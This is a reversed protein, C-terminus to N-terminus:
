KTHRRANRSKLTRKLWREYTGLIEGYSKKGIMDLHRNLDAAGLFPFAKSTPRAVYTQNAALHLLLVQEAEFRWLEPIGIAAYLSQRDLSSSSIDVEIALDPPPDTTFDPERRALMRVAHALYFCADPEFGRALDERRITMSGCPEFPQGTLISTREVVASLFYREREHIRMPAMLELRGRDYTCRIGRDGIAELFKEYTLWNADDILLRQVVPTARRTTGAASRARLATM